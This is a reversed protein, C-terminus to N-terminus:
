CCISKNNNNSCCWYGTNFIRHAYVRTNKHGDRDIEDNFADLFGHTKEDLRSGFYKGGSFPEPVKRCLRM